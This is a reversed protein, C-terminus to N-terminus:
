TNLYKKGFDKLAKGHAKWIYELTYDLDSAIKAFTRGQVYRYFLIQKYLLNDLGLIQDEIVIIKNHYDASLRALKAEIDALEVINNLLPDEPTQQVNLKDYRIASVAEMRSRVAEAQDETDRIIERLIILQRLYTKAKM